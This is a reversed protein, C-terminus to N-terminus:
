LSRCRRRKISCVYEEEAMGLYCALLRRPDHTFCFSFQASSPLLLYLTSPPPPPLPPLPIPFFWLLSSGKGFGMCHLTGGDVRSAVGPVLDPLCVPHSLSVHGPLLFGRM